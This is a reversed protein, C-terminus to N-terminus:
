SPARRHQQQQHAWGPGSESSPPRRNSSLVQLTCSAHVLIPWTRHSPCSSKSREPQVNCAFSEQRSAALRIDLLFRHLGLIRLALQGGMHHLSRLSMCTWLLRLTEGLPLVDLLEGGGAQLLEIHWDDHLQKRLNTLEGIVKAPAELKKGRRDLAARLHHHVRLLKKTLPEFSMRSPKSTCTTDVTKPM